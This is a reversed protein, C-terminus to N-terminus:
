LSSHSLVCSEIENLYMLFQLEVSLCLSRETCFMRNWGDQQTRIDLAVGL